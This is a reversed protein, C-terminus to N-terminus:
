DNPTNIIISSLKKDFLSHCKRSFCMCYNCNTLRSPSCINNDARGNVVQPFVQTQLDWEADMQPVWATTSMPQQIPIAWLFSHRVVLLLQQASNSIGERSARDLMYDPRGLATAEFPKMRQLPLVCASKSSCPQATVLLLCVIIRRAGSHRKVFPLM